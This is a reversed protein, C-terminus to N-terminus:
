WNKPCHLGDLKNSLIDNAESNTKKKKKCAICNQAIFFRASARQSKDNKNKQNKMNVNMGYM